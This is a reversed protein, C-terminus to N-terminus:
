KIHFIMFIIYIVIIALFPVDIIRERSEEVKTYKRIEILKSSEKFDSRKDLKRIVLYALIVCIAFIIISGQLLILKESLPLTKLSVESTQEMYTPNILTILKQMTISTGNLIFHMIMSSFISGTIRVVYALIFGLVTAYLFQNADLHFIGFFLGIVLASKLRNKDDYGSLVIGRLTIEETIAPMFAIIGMLILYPTGSISTILNGVNNEFFFGSILGFFNMIPVCLFALVIVLFLDKIPLPNFKFTQRVNCKTVLVYIIAPVLFLLIHNLVLVVRVDGIGLGKYIPYTIYPMVIELILIILFYVNARFVKRM